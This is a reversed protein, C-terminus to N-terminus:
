QTAYQNWLDLSYLLGAGFDHRNILANPWVNVGFYDGQEDGSETTYDPQGEAPIAFFGQHIAIAYGDEPHTEIFNAVELHGYPCFGCAIGTYEEILANKNEPDTGCHNPTQAM